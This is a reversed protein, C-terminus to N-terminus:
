RINGIANQATQHLANMINSLAQQMEGIKQLSEKLEEFRESRSEAKDGVSDQLRIQKSEITTRLGNAKTTLAEKKKQDPEAAAKETLGKLEGQLGEIEGRGADRLAKDDKRGAKELDLTAKIEKESSKIIASMLAFIMDEFALNPNNLIAEIEADAKALEREMENLKANGKGRAGGIEGKIFDNSIFGGGMGLEVDDYGGYGGGPKTEQIGALEELHAVRGELDNIRNTQAKEHLRERAEARAENIAAQRAESRAEGKAAKAREAAAKPSEPTQTRTSAPDNAAAQQAANPAKKTGDGSLLQFGDIAAGILGPGGGVVSLLNVGLSIGNVIEPPLDEGPIISDIAGAAINGISFKDYAAVVGGVLGDKEVAKGIDNISESVHRGAENVARGAEKTVSNWLNGLPNDNKVSM